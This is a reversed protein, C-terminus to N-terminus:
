VDKILGEREANRVMKEAIRRYDLPLMKIILKKAEAKDKFITIDPEKRPRGPGRKLQEDM